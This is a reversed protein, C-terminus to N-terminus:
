ILIVIDTGIIIITSISVKSLNLLKRVKVDAQNEIRLRKSVAKEGDNPGEIKRKRSM